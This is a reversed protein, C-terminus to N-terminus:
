LSLINNDGKNDDHLKKPPPAASPYDISMQCDIPIGPQRPMNENVTINQEYHRQDKM